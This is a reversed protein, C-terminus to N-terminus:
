WTGSGIDHFVSVNKSAKYSSGGPYVAELEMRRVRESRRVSRHFVPPCRLHEAAIRGTEAPFGDTLDQSDDSETQDSGYITLIIM